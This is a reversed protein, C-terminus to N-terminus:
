LHLSLYPEMSIKKADTGLVAQDQLGRVEVTCHYHPQAPPLQYAQFIIGGCVCARVCAHAYKKKGFQDKRKAQEQYLFM